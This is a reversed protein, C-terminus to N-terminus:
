RFQDLCILADGGIYPTVSILMTYITSVFIITWTFDYFRQPFIVTLKTAFYKKCFVFAFIITSVPVTAPMQTPLHYLAM